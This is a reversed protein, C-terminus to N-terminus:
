PVDQELLVRIQDRENGFTMVWSLSDVGGSSTWTMSDSSEMPHYCCAVGSTCTCTLAPSYFVNSAELEARRYILGAIRYDAPFSVSGRLEGATARDGHIFYSCYTGGAPLTVNENNSGNFTGPTVRNVKVPSTTTLRQEFWINTLTDSVLVPNSVLTNNNPAVFPATGPVLRNLNTGPVNTTSTVNPCPDTGAARAATTLINPAVWSAATVGVGAVGAKRLFDRRNDNTAVRESGPTVHGVRVRVASPVSASQGVERDGIM